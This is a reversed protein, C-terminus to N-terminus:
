AAMPGRRNRMESPCLYPAVRTKTVNPQMSYPLKWDILDELGQEELYPLLRAQVSFNDGVGGVPLCASPPLMKQSDHYNLLAVGLQRLNNSCSSRRAAERAAQIAPLLLAALSGIIVIVVLLEILTFGHSSRASRTM